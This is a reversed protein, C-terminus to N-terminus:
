SLSIPQRNIPTLKEINKGDFHYGSKFLEEKISIGYVPRGDIASRHFRSQVPKPKSYFMRSNKGDVLFATQVDLGRGISNFLIDEALAPDFFPLSKILGLSTYAKIRYTTM